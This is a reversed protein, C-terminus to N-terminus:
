CNLNSYYYYTSGYTPETDCCIYESFRFYFLSVRVPTATSIKTKTFFVTYFTCFVFDFIAM